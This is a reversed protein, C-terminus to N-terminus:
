RQVPQLDFTFSNITGPYTFPAIYADSLTTGYDRGITGGGEGVVLAGYTREIRGRGVETGDVSLVLMGGKGKGGGDYAFDAVLEHHGPTLPEAGAVVTRDRDAISANYMFTPKGNLVLFSWGGLRSGLAALAGDVNGSAPVEIDATMRWSRNMLNPFSSRTYRMTSNHFVFRNQGASMMPRPAASADPARGVHFEAARAAFEAQMEALKQPYRRSLDRSQSFDTDLNYLHWVPHSGAPPPAEQEWPFVRPDTSAFWGDKYFGINERLEFYQETRRDPADPHQFTYMLSQGTIPMQQVGNVTAPPTIGAVEYLTPAIDIVHTFQSRVQGEGALHGPWSIIMGNRIGGLHSGIAKGWQFPTNNAWAWPAPYNNWSYRSGFDDIHELQDALTEPMKNKNRAIEDVTGQPSGELSGGNDGIILVIMTNDFEGNAKLADVLRGIEHDLYALQAAYVEMMHAQVRKEDASLSSWAPFEPPRPTLVTDAPVIGERKQRALNEERLKDWGMDFEGKFRAIWDAPAQHPSHTSGPAYYMLFPHRADISHQMNLWDIAHDALDKDLIYDPKTQDIEEWNRNEVIAPAFQSTAGGIFGYFYGFGLGNPWHDFPGLPTDEWVPVNHHKGIMATDYGNMGLVQAFTAASDPIISNYGDDPSAEESIVGFGVQHANRGTLLAARTPSCMATTHFRNYRLGHTALADINPTPIAGGFASSAAFGTDDTMIVLINPAGAAPMPRQPYANAPAPAPAQQAQLPQAMMSTTLAAGIVRAATGALLKVVRNAL